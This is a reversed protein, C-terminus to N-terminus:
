NIDKIDTKPWSLQLLSKLETQVSTRYSAVIAELGQTLRAQYLHKEYNGLSLAKGYELTRAAFSDNDLPPLLAPDAQVASPYNVFEQAVSKRLADLKKSKEIIQNHLFSYDRPRLNKLSKANKFHKNLCDSINIEFVESMRILPNRPKEGLKIPLEAKRLLGTCEAGVYFVYGGIVDKRLLSYNQELQKNTEALEYEKKAIEKDLKNKDYVPVVTYVYIFITVLLLGAQSM